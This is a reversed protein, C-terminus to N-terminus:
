VGPAKQRAPAQLEMEHFREQRVSSASCSVAERSPSLSREGM